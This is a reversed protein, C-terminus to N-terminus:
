LTWPVESMGAGLIIAIDDPMGYTRMPHIDRVAQQLTEINAGGAGEGNFFSQLM